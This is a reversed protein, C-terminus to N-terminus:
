PLKAISDPLKAWVGGIKCHCNWGSDQCSYCTDCNKATVVGIIKWSDEKFQIIGSGSVGPYPRWNSFTQTLLNTIVIRETQSLTVAFAEGLSAYGPYVFKSVPFDLDVIVAETDDTSFSRQKAPIQAVTVEAEPRACLYKNTFLLLFPEHKYDQLVHAATVVKTNSIPMATGCYIKGTRLDYSRIAKAYDHGVPINLIKPTNPEITCFCASLVLLTVSALIVIRM